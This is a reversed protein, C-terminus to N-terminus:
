LPTFSPSQLLLTVNNSDPRKKAHFAQNRPCALKEFQACLKHPSYMGKLRTEGGYYLWCKDFKVMLSGGLLSMKFQMIQATVPSTYTLSDYAYKNM